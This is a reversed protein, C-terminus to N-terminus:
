NTQKSSTAHIINNTHKEDKGHTLNWNKEVEQGEVELIVSELEV